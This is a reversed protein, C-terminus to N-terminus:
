RRCPRCTTGHRSGDPGEVQSAPTAHPPGSYDSRIPPFSTGPARYQQCSRCGSRRPCPLVIGLIGPTEPPAANARDRSPAAAAPM